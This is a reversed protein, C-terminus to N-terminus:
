LVKVQVFCQWSADIKHSYIFFITENTVPFLLPFISPLFPYFFSPYFSSSTNHSLQNLHRDQLCSIAPKFGLLAEIWEKQTFWRRWSHIHLLSWTPSKHELTSRYWRLLLKPQIKDKWILFESLSFCFSACSMRNKFANMQELRESLKLECIFNFM